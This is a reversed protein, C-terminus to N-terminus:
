SNIQTKYIASWSKRSEKVLNRNTLISLEGM